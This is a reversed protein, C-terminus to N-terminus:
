NKIMEIVQVFSQFIEETSADSDAIMIYIHIHIIFTSAQSYGIDQGFAVCPQIIIINIKYEQATLFFSSM